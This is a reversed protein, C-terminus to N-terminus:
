LEGVRNSKRVDYNGWEIVSKRVDYNGWEIVRRPESTM